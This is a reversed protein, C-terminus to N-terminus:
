QKMKLERQLQKLYTEKTKPYLLLPMIYNEPMATISVCWPHISTQIDPYLLMRHFTATTPVGNITPPTVLYIYEIGDGDM